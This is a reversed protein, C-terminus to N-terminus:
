PANRVARVLLNTSKRRNDVKVDGPAFAVIWAFQPFIAFTGEVSTSSWYLSTSSDFVPDITPSVNTYDVLSQLEFVNPLRWDSNDALTLDATYSLASCWTYTGPATVQQWMLGTCTDTVTGDRNDVFRGASPCGTAYFGDQGPCPGTACDVVNGRQDYCATQGTDPLGLRSDPLEGPDALCVQPQPGGSFLWTLLHIGDSLDVTGDANSDISHLTRDQECALDDGGAQADVPLDQWFRGALLAANLVLVFLLLKKM